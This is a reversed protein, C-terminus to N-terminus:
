SQSRYRLIPRATLRSERNINSRTRHWPYGAATLETGSYLLSPSKGPVTIRPLDEQRRQRSRRSHVDSIFPFGSRWTTKGWVRKWLGLTARRHDEVGVSNMDSAVSPSSYSSTSLVLSAVYLFDYDRALLLRSAMISRDVQGDEREASESPFYESHRWEFRKKLIM